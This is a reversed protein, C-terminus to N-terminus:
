VDLTYGARYTPKILPELGPINTCKMNKSDWEVKPGQGKDAVWVALNGLLITETLPGAHDPFNSKAQEGGQIARIWEEVHGPSHVFQVEPIPKNGSLKLHHEAYDGPVYFNGKDGKILCGSTLLGKNRKIEEAYLDYMEGMVDKNPHNPVKNQDKGDYGDYWFFKLAPRNDLAPFEFVITSKIPFSDRNHGSTEAQVTAPNRLNLAWFPMNVTHCAM